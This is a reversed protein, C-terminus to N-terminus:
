VAVSVSFIVFVPPVLTEIELTATVPLPKLKLPMVVGTFRAAPALVENLTENSGADAPLALPVSVTVELAELGVRFMANDPVPTVAVPVSVAVGAVIAIPFTVTPLVPVPVPVRVALPALTVIVAAVLLM